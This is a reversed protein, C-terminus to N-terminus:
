LAFESRGVFYGDQEFISVEFVGLRKGTRFVVTYTYGDGDDVDELFARLDRLSFKTAFAKASSLNSKIKIKMQKGRLLQIDQGKDTEGRYTNCTDFHYPWRSYDIDNIRLMSTYRSCTCNVASTFDKPVLIPLHPFLVDLFTKPPNDHSPFLDSSCM